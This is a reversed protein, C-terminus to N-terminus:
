WLNLIVIAGHGSSDGFVYVPNNITYNKEYIWLNFILIQYNIDGLISLIIM